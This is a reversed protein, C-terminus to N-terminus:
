SPGTHYCPGRLACECLAEIMIAASDIRLEGFEQADVGVHRDTQTFCHLVGHQAAALAYTWREGIRAALKTADLLASEIRDGRGDLEHVCVRQHVVIERGHVVVIQTAAARGRM